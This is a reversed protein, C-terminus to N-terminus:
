ETHCASTIRVMVIIWHANSCGNETKLVMLHSWIEFKVKIIWQFMDIPFRTFFGGFSIYARFELLQVSDISIIACPSAKEKSCLWFWCALNSCVHVLLYINTFTMVIACLHLLRQFPWIRIDVTKCAIRHCSPVNVAVPFLSNSKKGGEYFESILKRSNANQNM